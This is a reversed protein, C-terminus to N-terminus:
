RTSWVEIRDGKGRVEVNAIATRDVAFAFRRVTTDPTAPPPGPTWVIQARVVSADADASLALPADVRSTGYWDQVVVLSETSWDFGARDLGALFSKSAAEFTEPLCHPAHASLRERLEARSAIVFPHPTPACALVRLDLDDLIRYVDAGRAPTAVSLVVLLAFLLTKM